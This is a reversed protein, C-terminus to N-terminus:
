NFHLIGMRQKGKLIWNNSIEKDNKYGPKDLLYKNKSLIPPGKILNDEVLIMKANEENVWTKIKDMMWVINLTKVKM